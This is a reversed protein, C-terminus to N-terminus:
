LRETEITLYLFDNISEIDIHVNQYDDERMKNIQETAQDVAEKIIQKAEERTEFLTAMSRNPVLNFTVSFEDENRLLYKQKCKIAFSM